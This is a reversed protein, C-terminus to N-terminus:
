NPYKLIIKINKIKDPIVTRWFPSIKLTASDINPYRSLVNNFDKKSKNLLDALLVDANVRWVFKTKGSLNFGINKLDAFSNNEKDSLTFNLNKINSIFIESGDYKAMNKELIYRTLKEENFLIGYLTGNIKFVANKDKEYSLSLKSDNTDLFIADKFLVFGQPIQDTANKLLKLRLNNKIRSVILVKDEESVVPAKGEFGGSIPGKSRGYFKTYKPTGKFGYIKFDLPGSNYEEGSGAAYIKVEVSGPIGSKAMGPVTTKTLTKYIKGNSGELRTDVSLNQSVSSFSNYIIVSGTAVERVDREEKAVVIESEEGSIVVTDFVLGDDSSDKTASFNDNLVVEKMKPNITIEAKSFLYSFAFFCITVSILAVFWLLYKPSSKTNAVNAVKPERGEITKTPPVVRIKRQQNKNKVIDELLRKAM